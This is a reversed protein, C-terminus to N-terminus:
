ESIGEILEPPIDIKLIKILSDGKIELCNDKVSAKYEYKKNNKTRVAFSGEGDKVSTLIISKKDNDLTSLIHFKIFNASGCEVKTITVPSLMICSDAYAFNISILGFLTVVIYKLIKINKMKWKGNEM